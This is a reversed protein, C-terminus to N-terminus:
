RCVLVSGGCNSQRKEQLINIAVAPKKGDLVQTSIWLSHLLPSGSSASTRGGSSYTFDSSTFCLETFEPFASKILSAKPATTTSTIIREAFSNGLVCATSVPYNTATTSASSHVTKFVVFSSCWLQFTPEIIFSATEIFSPLTWISKQTISVASLTDM